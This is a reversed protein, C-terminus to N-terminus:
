NKKKKKGFFPKEEVHEEIPAPEVKPATLEKYTDKVSAKVVADIYSGDCNQYKLTATEKDIEGTQYQATIDFLAKCNEGCFTTMWLPKRMDDACDPCFTYVKGCVLCIRNNKRKM